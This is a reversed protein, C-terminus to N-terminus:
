EFVAVPGADSLLCEVDLPLHSRDNAQMAGRGEIHGLTEQTVASAQLLSGLEGAAQPEGTSVASLLKALDATRDNATM